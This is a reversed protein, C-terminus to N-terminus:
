PERTTLESVQQWPTSLMRLADLWGPDVSVRPLHLSVTPHDILACYYASTLVGTTRQMRM